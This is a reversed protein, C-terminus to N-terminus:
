APRVALENLTLEDVSSLRQEWKLRERANISAMRFGLIQDFCVPAEKWWYSLLPWSCDM